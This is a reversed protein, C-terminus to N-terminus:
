VAFVVQNRGNQRASYLAEDAKNILYQHDPHGGYRFIFDGSRVCGMLLTAVQQLVQDGADHGWADNIRKFRQWTRRRAPWWKPWCRGALRPSQRQLPRGCPKRATSVSQVVWDGM